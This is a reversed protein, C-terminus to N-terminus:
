KLRDELDKLYDLYKKLQELAKLETKLTKKDKTYKVIGREKIQTM